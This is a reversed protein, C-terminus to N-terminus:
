QDQSNVAQSNVAVAALGEGKRKQRSSYAATWVGLTATVAFPLVKSIALATGVSTSEVIAIRAAAEVLYGAAWVATM